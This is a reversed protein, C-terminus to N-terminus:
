PFHASGSAGLCLHLSWRRVHAPDMRDLSKGVAVGLWTEDLGRGPAAHGLTEYNHTPFVYAMYPAIAVPQLALQYHMETRLDTFTAHYSGDDVEVPHVAGPLIHPSAGHYGSEVLPLSASFQLRDTPSYDAGLGYTFTRIHGADVETGASLYHKTVWTDVYSLYLDGSGASSLWAQAHAADGWMACAM